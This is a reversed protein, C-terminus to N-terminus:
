GTLLGRRRCDIAIARALNVLMAVLAHGLNLADALEAADRVYEHVMRNRLKRSALRKRDSFFTSVALRAAFAIRSPTLIM